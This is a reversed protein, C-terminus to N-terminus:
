NVVGVYHSMGIKLKLKLPGSEEKEGGHAGPIFTGHLCKHLYECTCLFNFNVKQFSM